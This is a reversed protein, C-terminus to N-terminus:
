RKASKDKRCYKCSFEIFHQVQIEHTLLCSGASEKEPIFEVAPEVISYGVGQYDFISDAAIIGRSSEWGM